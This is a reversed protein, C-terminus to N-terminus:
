QRQLDARAQAHRRAAAGQQVQPIRAEALSSSQKRERAACYQGRTHRAAAARAHEARVPLGVPDHHQRFCVRRHGSDPVLGQSQLMHPRDITAVAGALNIYDNPDQGVTGATFLGTSRSETYSIDAQWHSSMRKTVTMLLGKYTNFFGPGNTLTFKRASAANLLPLVTLTQGNALTVTQSGYTGGVDKWGLQNEGHKYVYSVKLAMAKALQRDLRDIRDTFPADVNPDLQINSGPITTSVLTTYDLTAPDYRRLSSAPQGPYIGTLESLVVGRYARNYNGRMVMTGADTLKLNFGVRPSINKWAFLDGAGKVTGSIPNLLSDVASLDPSSAAYSGVPRWSQADAPESDDDSRGGLGWRRQLPRRCRISGSLDGAAACRGPGSVSRWQSVRDRFPLQRPRIPRGRPYGAGSSGPHLSQDQGVPQSALSEHPRVAARRREPYGDRSGTHNPTIKDGTKPERVWDEGTGGAHFSLLTSNSLTVNVRTGYTWIGRWHGFPTSRGVGRIDTLASAPITLTTRGPSNFPEDTITQSFKVRDNIKWDVKSSLKNDQDYTANQGFTPNLGPASEKREWIAAGGFFWLRDKIIPGGVHLSYDRYGFRSFGTEGAPCNCPLKTPKSVLRDNQFIASASGSFMNTGSKGVFTFVAGQSFKYEASAGLTSVQMEEIADVDTAQILGGLTALETGDLQWSNENPTSGMVNVTQSRASPDGASVGPTWKAYEQVSYRQNQVNEILEKTVTHTVEVQRVDVMPSEGSVTVTEEIASVKLTVNRELTAGTTIRLQEEQYIQFGPLVIRLTYVGPNLRIM